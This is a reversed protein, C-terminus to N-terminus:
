PDLSRELRRRRRLMLESRVRTSARFFLLMAREATAITKEVLSYELSPIPAASDGATARMNLSISEGFPLRASSFDAIGIEGFEDVRKVDGFGSQALLYALWPATFGTKHFDYDDKQGGYIAGLWPNHPPTFWGPDNVLRAAIRELDPVAVLLTGGDRLVRRWEGLVRPVDDTPFHELVHSAYILAVAGSEFPLPGGVDAVLDVGAAKLLDVNVFGPLPHTGCGLNLKIADGGGIPACVVASKVM